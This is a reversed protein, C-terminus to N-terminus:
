FGKCGVGAPVLKFLTNVLEKIKPKVENLTLDTRLVRMGCNIDFGISGPSIVGEEMDFAAVGGIPMGYGRHADSHCIAYKQIGPLTAVNTLQEFVEADMAKLIPETAIIRAPVKMGEKYSIPIEWTTENIKKIEKPINSM